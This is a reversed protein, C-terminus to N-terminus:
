VTKTKKRKLFDAASSPLTPYETPMEKEGLLAIKQNHLLRFADARQEDTVQSATDPHLCRIIKTYEDKTFVQKRAKIVLDADRQRREMLPLTHENVFAQVGAQLRQDFQSELYRKHAALASDFQEQKSTALEPVPLNGFIREREERRGVEKAIITDVISSSHGSGLGGGPILSAAEKMSLGLDLVAEAVKSEIEPTVNKNRRMGAAASIPTPEPSNDEIQKVNSPKVPESQVKAARVEKLAGSVSKTGNRVEAVVEPPAERKLAQARKVSAEGINLKEAAQAVTTTLPDISGKSRDGGHKMTAIEAAIMARQSENLHRRHINLSVVHDLAEDSTGDFAEFKVAKGLELCARYRHRGDLIKDQYTLVPQLLGHRRIDEKLHIFEDDTMGPILNAYPHSEMTDRAQFSSAM